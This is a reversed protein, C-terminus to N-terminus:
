IFPPAPSFHTAPCAQALITLQMRWFGERRCVSIMGASVYARKLNWGLLIASTFMDTLDFVTSVALQNLQIMNIWLAAAQLAAPGFLKYNTRNVKLM